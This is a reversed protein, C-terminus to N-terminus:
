FPLSTDVPLQKKLNAICDSLQKIQRRAAVLNNELFSIYHNEDCDHIDEIMMNHSAEKRMLQLVERWPTDFPVKIVTVRFFYYKYKM